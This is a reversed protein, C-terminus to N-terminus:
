KKQIQCIYKQLFLFVQNRYAELVWTKWNEKLVVFFLLVKPLSKVFDQLCQQSSKAIHLIESFFIFCVKSSIYVYNKMAFFYLLM